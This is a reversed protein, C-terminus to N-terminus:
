PLQQIHNGRCLRSWTAAELDSATISNSVHFASMFKKPATFVVDSTNQLIAATSLNWGQVTGGVRTSRAWVAGSMKVPMAVVMDENVKMTAKFLRTIDVGKLKAGPVVTVSHAKVTSLQM